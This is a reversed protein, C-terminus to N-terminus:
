AIIFPPPENFYDDEVDVTEKFDDANDLRTKVIDLMRVILVLAMVLDDHEGSKAAFSSGNAVFMKLQKILAQSNVSLRGTEVLSKLKVCANVKKTHDTNLGKRFRRSSGPKKKECVFVGPFMDSGTDEIVQLVAEGLTNNEVTYYISPEGDQEPNSSLEDNLMNLIGILLKVQGRPPTKNHQWEAIQVMGPIEFVEIASYDGGTGLSPDLAVLYTKNPEPEKYWRVQGTFFEPDKSKMASLTLSDILTEDDSIFACNKSLIGNTYYKHGNEVEVLTYVPSCDEYFEKSTLVLPGDKGQVVDGLVLDQASIKVGQDTYFCHTPSVEVALEYDNFILEYTPTKGMVAVGAFDQWGSDTLVKYGTNEYLEKM